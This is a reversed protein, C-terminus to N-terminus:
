YEQLRERQESKSQGRWDIQTLSIEAQHNSCRSRTM